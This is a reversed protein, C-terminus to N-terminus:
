PRPKRGIAVVSLVVFALFTVVLAIAFQVLSPRFLAWGLLVSLAVVLISLCAAVLAPMISATKARRSVLPAALYPAGGLVGCVIGVVIPVIGEM